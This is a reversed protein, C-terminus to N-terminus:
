QQRGYSNPGHRLELAPSLHTYSVAGSYPLRSSFFTFHGYKASRIYRWVRFAFLSRAILLARSYIHILSLNVIYSKLSVREEAMGHKLVDSVIYPLDEQTVLEKKDSIKFFISICDTQLTSLRAAFSSTDCFVIRLSM